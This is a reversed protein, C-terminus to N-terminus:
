LGFTIFTGFYFLLLPSLPSHQKEENYYSLSQLTQYRFYLLTLLLFISAAINNQIIKKKNGQFHMSFGYHMSAISTVLTVRFYSLCYWRLQEIMQWRWHKESPYTCQKSLGKRSSFASVPGPLRQNYKWVQRFIITAILWAIFFFEFM